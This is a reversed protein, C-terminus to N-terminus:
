DAFAEILDWKENDKIWEALEDLCIPCYKDNITTFTDINGGGNIFAFEDNFHYHGYYVARAAGYPNQSFYTEFFDKYNGFIESNFGTDYSYDNWIQIIHGLDMGELTAKVANFSMKEM